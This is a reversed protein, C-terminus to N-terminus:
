VTHSSSNQRKRSPIGFLALVMYVWAHMRWPNFRISRSFDRLALTPRDQKYHRYGNDFHINAIRQTVQRRPASVGNPSTLGWRKVAQEVVIAGYNITAGRATVSASHQRYLAFPRKLRHIPTVRSVRLWYDYDQGLRLREDFLGVSEILTRRMMVTSTWVLTDLLLKHYIWGSGDPDIEQDSTHLERALSAPPYQGTADPTWVAFETCLMQVDPHEALYRLQAQLKGPLWLDDADLFALLGGCAVRIGANRATAAGGNAKRILCVNPYYQAVFDATGDTSGDDVVIIEIPGADQELVSDIAEGIHTIAKFAPIIISIAPSKQQM